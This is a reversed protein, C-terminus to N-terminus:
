KKKKLLLFILCSIVGDFSFINFNVLGWGLGFEESSTLM